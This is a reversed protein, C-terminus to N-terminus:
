KGAFEAARAVAKCKEHAAAQLLYFDGADMALAAAAKELPLLSDQVALLYPWARPHGELYRRAEDANNLTVRKM